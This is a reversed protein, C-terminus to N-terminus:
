IEFFNKWYEFIKLEFPDGLSIWQDIEFIVFKYKKKLLLNINNGVYYEDNITLKNKKAELYNDFFYSAKKFWFSGVIMHDNGPDSSITRKEVIKTIFKNKNVACYGFANYSKIIQNNLKSTWIIGDIKKNKILRNWKKEDFITLYDCSSIFLPNDKNIYKKALYCSSAPGETIKKIKIINSKLSIQNILKEIRNNKNDNENIIFNWNETKPFTDTTFKLMPMKNIEILPKPVRYGYDRFRKGEGSIPILNNTKSKTITKFFVNKKFYKQWFVYNEYDFPTGLCIFKEVEFVNIKLKAKQMHNYILSVYAEGKNKNFLKKAFTSFINFSKFYYIGCSAYETHPIKTFSSKEKIKIFNNKKDTKIYAYLTGSFSSPHFDKFVPISGDLDYINRLFRKYDWRVFFDCYAIIIPEDFNINKVNLASFVPGKNHNKIIHIFNKKSSSKIIKKLNPIKSQTESIIFHFTDNSNFMEVVKNLIIKKEGIKLLFKEKKYGSSKFRLSKGALTIIINL